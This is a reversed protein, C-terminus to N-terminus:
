LCDTLLTGDRLEKIRVDNRPYGLLDVRNLGIAM